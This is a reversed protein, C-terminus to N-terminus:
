LLTAGGRDGHGAAGRRHANRALNKGGGVWEYPHQVKIMLFISRVLAAPTLFSQPAINPELLATQIEISQITPQRHCITVKMRPGKENSRRRSNKESNKVENM